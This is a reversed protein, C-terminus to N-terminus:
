LEEFPVPKFTAPCTNTTKAIVYIATLTPKRNVADSPRVVHSPKM